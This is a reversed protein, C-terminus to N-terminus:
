KPKFFFLTKEKNQGHSHGTHTARTKSRQRRGPSIFVQIMVHSDNEQLMLHIHDSLQKRHFSEVEKEDKM